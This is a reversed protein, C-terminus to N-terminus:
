LDRRRLRELFAARMDKIKVITKKQIDLTKLKAIRNVRKTTFRVRVAQKNFIEQAITVPISYYRRRGQAIAQAENYTSIIRQYEGAARHVVSEWSVYVTKRADEGTSRILDPNKLANELAKAYAATDLAATFGNKGDVVGEAADSGAILASPCGCSAAERVVLPANDYVSPLTFIDASAYINRLMSRDRIVGAFKVRNTIGLEAVMKHYHPFSEGDGVLLLNCDVGKIQSFSKLLFGINKQEVVRGVFLLLPKDPLQFHDLVLKRIAPTREMPAFDCGNPMVTVAGRYGYQALTRASSSNVAWVEDAQSFYTATYRAAIKGANEMKLRQAFDDAFKTHFTAVLPINKKRATMLALTGSAFPCHAHVLNLPLSGLKVTTRFAIEPLGLNYEKVLLLPMSIFRIVPFAEKDDAKIHQPTVVCCKTDPMKNLWVAYNRMTQAVGDTQPPYSDNFQGYYM